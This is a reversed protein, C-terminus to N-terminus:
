SSRKIAVLILNKTISPSSPNQILYDYELVSFGAVSIEEVLENLDYIHYYRKGWKDKIIIDGRGIEKVIYKKRLVSLEPLWVTIILIGKDRLIRQMNRLLYARCEKGPINHLFAQLYVTDFYNNNFPLTLADALIKVLNKNNEIEELVEKVMDLLVLQTINRRNFFYYRTTSAYGCGVDLVKGRLYKDLLHHVWPTRRYYKGRKTFWEINM